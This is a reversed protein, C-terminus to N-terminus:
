AAGFSHNRKPRGAPEDSPKRRKRRRRHFIDAVGAGNQHRRRDVSAPRIPRDRGLLQQYQHNESGNISVKRSWEPALARRNWHRENGNRENTWNVDELTREDDRKPHKEEIRKSEHNARRQDTSNSDRHQSVLRIWVFSIKGRVNVVSSILSVWIPEVCVCVRM